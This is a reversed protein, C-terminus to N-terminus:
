EVVTVEFWHRTNTGTDLAKVAFTDGPSVGAYTLTATWTGNAGVVTTTQGHEETWVLVEHGPQGTGSYVNTPDSAPVTGSQQGATFAAAADAVTTLQFTRSVSADHYHRATVAFTTTGAPPDFTVQVRWTGAEDAYAYAWGHDSVVKIKEGPNATGSYVNTYPAGELTSRQQDATFTRTSEQAVTTLTFTRAVDPQHHLRATVTFTTEGPPPDFDVVVQWRGADDAWGHGTGHTSVVAVKAGPAATGTYTNSHPASGLVSSQQTATLTTAAPEDSAPEEDPGDASSAPQYDVTVTTSASNGATDTAVFTVTNPGPAAVLLLSWRGDEDVDADFDGVAVRAGPETTGSFTVEESTVTAGDAPGLVAIAPAVADAPVAPADQEVPGPSPEQNPEQSPEPSPASTDGDEPTALVVPQQPGELHQVVQPVAVATAGVAATVGLMSAASVAVLYRRGRRVVGPLASGPDLRTSDLGDPLQQLRDIVPDM